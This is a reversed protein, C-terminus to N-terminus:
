ISKVYYLLQHLWINLIPHFVNAGTLLLNKARRM